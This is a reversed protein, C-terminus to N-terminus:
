TGAAFSLVRHHFFNPALDVGEARLKRLLQPAVGSAMFQGAAFGQEDVGTQNYTFIDQLCVTEGEMGTIEEVRVVKRRGGTLRDLHILLQMASAIQQRIVHVPYNLGAMSVMNEVRGLADRPSNAHVTTMSGEHGTNMAQLMDFAEPGRVEGIIIRDPRMRLSNRLLDRQTVEGKGEINSPRSELRVVHERQLQLEAADEITVLREDVPIERSLANLFTTKGTGTGGSVLVNVKCRVCARLFEAMEVTLTELEILRNMDIPIKAFRRLSMAPGVLSLPPIIANVRTGDSLRADLMPSAEDIRRGVNAAIRQIAVMLHNVDRFSAGTQELRGFREVYIQHPGNVLIDSVTPDRLLVELPGLGFIEDMIEHILNAKEQATLPCRQETLLTDLRRTCEEHLQELTMKRAAVFDLTDLLQQHIRVKVSLVASAYAAQENKPVNQMVEQAM